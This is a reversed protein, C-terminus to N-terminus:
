FGGGLCRAADAREKAHAREDQAVLEALTEGEVPAGGKATPGGLLGKAKMEFRMSECLASVGLVTKSM